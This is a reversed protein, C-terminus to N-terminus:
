EVDRVCRVQNQRNDDRGNGTSTLVMVPDNYAFGPRELGNFISNGNYSFRTSTWLNTDTLDGEMRTYMLMMERQNPIRYGDPCLLSRNITGFGIIIGDNGERETVWRRGQAGASTQESAVEFGGTYPKNIDDNGREYHTPLERGGDSVTRKALGGLYTVSIQRTNSNYEAFPQPEDALDDLGIGLYRICRYYYKTGNENEENNNNNSSYSYSGRSAGEEAWIVYPNTYSKSADGDYYSSSAVHLRQNGNGKYLRAVEPMADEGIWLDTLEDVSALFWRIEEPEIVNDGDLDRNRILCAHWIDRYDSKLEEGEDDNLTQDTRNLIDGWKLGRSEGQDNVYFMLTNIRGNSVTNEYRHNNVTFASVSPMAVQVQPTAELLEGELITETGWATNLGGASENYMTYVPTQSFTVVSETWSSNGDDSYAVDGTCIHLLRNSGNVVEKWLELRRNGDDTDPDLAQPDIYEEKRPDYHYVYEDIFATVYVRYEGEELVFIDSVPEEKNAEVKLHNLLQNVDRLCANDSVFSKNKYQYFNDPPMNTKWKGRSLVNSDSNGEDVIGYDSTNKNINQTWSGGDYAGYGPFKVMNVNLGDIPSTIGESGNEIGFEANVAFMIWKYDKLAFERADNLKIGNDFPTQIAWSLGEQLEDRTLYFLARGYHSDISEVQNGAIIVDGENDPREEKNDTVEVRISNVGNITVTYTYHTNRNVTYNNVKEPDDYDNLTNGTEGLYVIYSVSANVWQQVGNKTRQYSLTGTFIVYTSNAPAYKFTGDANKKARLAYLDAAQEVQNKEETIYNDATSAVNKHSEFMYFNFYIGNTNNADSSDFSGEGENYGTNSDSVQPMVNTSNPLNYVTFGIPTFTIGSTVTVGAEEDVVSRADDAVNIKFTIKADARELVLETLQSNGNEEDYLNANDSITVSYSCTMLFSIRNLNGEDMKETLANLTIESEVDPLLAALSSSANAVAVIRKNTGSHVQLNTIRKAEVDTESVASKYDVSGDNNFVYIYLSSINSETEETQEVRSQKQQKASSFDLSVIVPVGEKVKLSNQKVIDDDTCSTFLLSLGLVVSTMIYLLKKM